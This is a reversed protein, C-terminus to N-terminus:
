LYIPGTTSQEHWLLEQKKDEVKSKLRPLSIKLFFGFIFAETRRYSKLNCSVKVNNRKRWQSNLLHFVFVALNLCLFIM